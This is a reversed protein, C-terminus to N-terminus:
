DRKETKGCWDQRYQRPTRGETAKFVQIFYSPEMGIMEAVSGVPLETGRLLEKARNIRVYALYRAPSLGIASQFTRQLHFKSVSFEAALDDLSVDERYHSRLYSAIQQVSGSTETRDGSQCICEGMLEHLLRDARIDNEPDKEYGGALELISGLLEGVRHDGRLFAAPSGDNRDLCRKWYPAMQRGNWHVWLMEWKDTGPATEYNQEQRCDIWFVSGPEVSYRKGCYDLIGSGSITYKLLYSELGSRRTFYDKGACFHGAEQLFLLNERAFEGANVFEWAPERRMDLRCEMREM